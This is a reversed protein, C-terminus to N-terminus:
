HTFLNGISVDQVDAWVQCMGGVTFYYVCVGWQSCTFSIVYVCVCVCVLLIDAEGKGRGKHVYVYILELM